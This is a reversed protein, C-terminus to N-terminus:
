LGIYNIFGKLITAIEARTAPTKPNFNNNPDGQIINSNRMIEVAEKAWSSISSGDEFSQAGEGSPLNYGMAKTFNVLIVVLEERTVSNDPSFNDNGTGRTINSILSWEAYPGYYSSIDVDDFSSSTFDTASIGALRGLATILMSRNMNDDPSFQEATTGTM